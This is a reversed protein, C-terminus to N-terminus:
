AFLVAFDSYSQVKSPSSSRDIHLIRAFRRMYGVVAGVPKGCFNRKKKYCLFNSKPILMYWYLVHQSNSVSFHQSQASDKCKCSAHPMCCMVAM